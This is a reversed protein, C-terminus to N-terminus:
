FDTNASNKASSKMSRLPMLRYIAAVYSILEFGTIENSNKPAVFYCKKKLHSTFLSIRPINSIWYLFNLAEPNEWRSFSLTPCSRTTQMWDSQFLQFLIHSLGAWIMAAKRFTPILKFISPESSSCIFNWPCSRPSGFSMLIPHISIERHINNHTSYTFIKRIIMLNLLISYFIRILQIRILQIIKASSKM